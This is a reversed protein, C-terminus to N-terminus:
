TNSNSRIHEILKKSIFFSNKQFYNKEVITRSLLNVDNNNDNNNNCEYSIKLNEFDEFTNGQIKQSNEFENSFDM